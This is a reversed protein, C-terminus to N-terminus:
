KHYYCYDETPACLVSYGPYREEFLEATLDDQVHIDYVNGNVADQPYLFPVAVILDKCRPKAYDLMKRADEPSMHEVIDGFIILDYHRYEFTRADALYLNRYIRKEALAHYFPTFAEVGDMRHYDYLLLKWKGDCAGMDLITSNKPFNDRIWQCVENKGYDYSGM